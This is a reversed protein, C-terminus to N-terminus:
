FFKWTLMIPHWPEISLGEMDVNYSSFHFSLRWLCMWIISLCVSSRHMLWSFTIRTNLVGACIVEYTSKTFWGSKPQNIYCIDNKCQINAKVSHSTM